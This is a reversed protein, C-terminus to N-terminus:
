EFDVEAICQTYKITMDLVFFLSILSHQKCPQPYLFKGDGKFLKITEYSKTFKEVSAHRYIKLISCILFVSSM